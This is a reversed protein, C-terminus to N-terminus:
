NATFYGSVKGEKILRDRKLIFVLGLVLVFIAIALIFVTYVGWTRGPMREAEPMSQYEQDILAFARNACEYYNGAKALRTVKDTIGDLSEADLKKIDFDGFSAIYLKNSGKNIVMINGATTGFREQYLQEADQKISKTPQGTTVFMYNVQDFHGLLHKKLTKEKVEPMLDAEDSIYVGGGKAFAPISTTFLLAILVLMLVMGPISLIQRKRTM